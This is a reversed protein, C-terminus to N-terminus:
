DTIEEFSDDEPAPEDNKEPAAKEKEFSVGEIHINVKQVDLGTMTEINNKVNEQ